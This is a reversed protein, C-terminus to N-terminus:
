PPSARAMAASAWEGRAPAQEAALFVAMSVGGGNAGVGHCAARTANGFAALELECGLPLRFASPDAAVVLGLLVGM